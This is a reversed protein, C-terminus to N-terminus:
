RLSNTQYNRTNYSCPKLEAERRRVSREAGGWIGERVASDQRLVSDGSLIVSPAALVEQAGETFRDQRMM